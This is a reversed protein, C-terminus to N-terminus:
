RIAGVDTRWAELAALMHEARQPQAAALDERKGPDEDLDFLIPPGPTGEHRDIVLKWPGDRVAAGNWFTGDAGWFLQRRALAEQRLLVPSLDVGDFAPLAMGGVGSSGAEAGAGSGVLALLTPMVDLTSALQGSETGAPIRGPWVAIPPVRHGGEWDTAKLGRLPGNSGWQAAGNDSFFWALTRDAIGHAALADLADGIGADMEQVMARYARRRDAVSGRPDFEGGTATAASSGCPTSRSSTPPPSASLEHDRWWDARGMTDVHSHYDINGSVFGRFEDFGHRM